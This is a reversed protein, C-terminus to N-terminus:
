SGGAVTEKRFKFVIEHNIKATHQHQGFGMGKVPVAVWDCLTFGLQVLTDKHWGAVNVEEGKRIHNKVNLIFTGGDPLLSRVKRWAGVHFERYADGWQLKGSNNESLPRGLTHRYTIRQSTDRAAHHDSQRNGYVPSTVVSDIAGVTRTKDGYEFVTTHPDFEFFDGCWTFGKQKSQDAWEHEIEVAFTEVGYRKISHVGGVGGFPDLVTGAPAMTEIVELIPANFKAPHKVPKM